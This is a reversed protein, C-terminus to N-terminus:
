YGTKLGTGFDAIAKSSEAFIEAEVAMSRGYFRWDERSSCYYSCNCYDIRGVAVFSGLAEQEEAGFKYGTGEAVLYRRASREEVVFSRNRAVVESEDHGSAGRTGGEPFGQEVM